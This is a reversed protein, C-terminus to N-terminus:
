LNGEGSLLSNRVPLDHRGNLPRSGVHGSENLGKAAYSAAIPLFHFYRGVRDQKFTPNASRTALKIRQHM